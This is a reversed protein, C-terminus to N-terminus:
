SGSVEFNDTRYNPEWAQNPMRDQHQQEDRDKGYSPNVRHVAGLHHASQTNNRFM